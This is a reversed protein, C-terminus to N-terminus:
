NAHQLQFDTAFASNYSNVFNKSPDKKVRECKFVPDINQYSDPRVDGFNKRPGYLITPGKM